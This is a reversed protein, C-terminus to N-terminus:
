PTGRLRALEDGLALAGHLHRALLSAAGANDRAELADLIALHERANQHVRAPGLVWGYNTLRRLRNHQEVAQLFFRNGSAAVIGHHFAANLEFFAVALSDQWPQDLFRRHGDRMEAGFGEALAYGPELLAAPEVVIRFRYAAAREAPTALGPTFRWGHGRNRTVIGLEELRRLARGLDGRAAGTHRQLDAESLSEALRGAARDRCLGVMVAAVPDTGAPAPIAAHPNRLVMARGEAAVIGAAQLVALAGRIPTRSVGLRGALADQRLKTGPPTAEQALLELLARALDHHLATATEGTM